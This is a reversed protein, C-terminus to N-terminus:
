NALYKKKYPAVAGLPGLAEKNDLSWSWVWDCWVRYSEEPRTLLGVWLGKGSLVCCESSLSVDMGRRSEFGCDWCALPWEETPWLSTWQTHSIAFKKGASLNCTRRVARPNGEAEYGTRLWKRQVLHSGGKERAQRCTAQKWPRMLVEPKAHAQM